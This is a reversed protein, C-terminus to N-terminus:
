LSFILFFSLNHCRAGNSCPLYVPFLHFYHCIEEEQAGFDSHITVAAMFHSSSQKKAPFGDCVYVTNFLLSMVRGVFTWMTSAITKRTTMHPQSLQVMLFLLFGFFQHKQVTTSSFVGSLGTSLLSILGTLRLPSWGQINVPLVSASASAGTNQDDSTFLRSMPFTGSAPFSQPCFSYLAKSSSTAPCCWWHLSCSSPCVGPSPSPCPPRAHQLGHPRLSNSVVSCSCLLLLLPFLKFSNGTCSFVHHTWFSPSPWHPQHASHNSFFYSALSLSLAIHLSSSIKIGLAM